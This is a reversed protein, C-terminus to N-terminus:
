RYDTSTCVHGYEKSLGSGQDYETISSFVQLDWFGWLCNRLLLFLIKHGIGMSQDNVKYKGRVQKHKKVSRAMNEYLQYEFDKLM